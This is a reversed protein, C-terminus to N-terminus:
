RRAKRRKGGRKKKPLLVAFMLLGAAAAILPTSLGSTAAPLPSSPLMPLGTPLYGSAKDFGPLAGTAPITGPTGPFAQGQTASQPANLLQFPSANVPSDVPHEQQVFVPSIMPSVETQVSTNVGVNVGGNGGAGSGAGGGGPKLFASALPGILSTPDFGLGSLTNCGCPPSIDM